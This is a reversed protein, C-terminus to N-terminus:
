NGDERCQDAQEEIDETDSSEDTGECFDEYLFRGFFHNFFAYRGRRAFGICGEVLVTLALPITLSCLFFLVLSLYCRLSCGLFRLFTQSFCFLSGCLLTSAGSLSIPPSDFNLDFLLALASGSNFSLLLLRLFSAPDLVFAPALFGFSTLVFCFLSTAGFLGPVEHELYAVM